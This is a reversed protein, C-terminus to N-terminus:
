SETIEWDLGTSAQVSVTGSSTVDGDADVTVTVNGSPVTGNLAFGLNYTVPTDEAGQQNITYTTGGATFTVQRSSTSQNEEVRFNFVVQYQTTKGPDGSVEYGSGSFNSAATVTTGNIVANVFTLNSGITLPIYQLNSYGSYSITGGAAPFSSASSPANLTLFASHGLQTVLLSNSSSVPITGVSGALSFVVSRSDRGTHAAGTITLTQTATASSPNISINNVTIM